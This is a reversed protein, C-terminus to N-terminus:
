IRQLQERIELRAPDDDVLSALASALDPDISRAEDMIQLRIQFTEPNDELLASQMASRLYQRGLGPDFPLVLQAISGSKNARELLM